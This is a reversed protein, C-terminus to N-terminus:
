LKIGLNIMLPRAKRGTLLCIRTVAMIHVALGKPKDGGRAEPKESWRTWPRVGLQMEKKLNPDRGDHWRANGLMLQAPRSLWLKLSSDSGQMLLSPYGPLGPM